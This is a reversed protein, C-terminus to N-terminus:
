YQTNVRCTSATDYMRQYINVQLNAIDPRKNPYIIVGSKGDQYSCAVGNVKIDKLILRNASDHLLINSHSGSPTSGTQVGGSKIINYEVTDGVNNAVSFSFLAANAISVSLLLLSFAIRQMILTEM